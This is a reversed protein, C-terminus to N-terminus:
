ARSKQKKRKNKGTRKEIKEGSEKEFLLAIILWAVGITICSDALNFVPFWKLDFFDVVYGRFIRDFLNGIIGATILIIPIEHNKRISKVSMMIIGLAILSILILSTNQGQLIGFGASTNQVEHIIFIGADMSPRYIAICAKLAQDIMILASLLIINRPLSDM